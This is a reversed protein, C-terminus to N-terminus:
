SGVAKELLQEIIQTATTNKEVAVIRLKRHLSEPLNITLRRYGAPAVTSRKDSVKRSPEPDAVTAGGEAFKIAAEVKRSVLNPKTLQSIKSSM